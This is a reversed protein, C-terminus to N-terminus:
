CGKRGTVYEFEVRSNESVGLNNHNKLGSYNRELLFHEVAKEHQNLRYYSHGIWNLSRAERYRDVLEKWIVVELLFHEVAKEYQDLYYYSLGINRLCGAKSFHTAEDSRKDLLKQLLSLELQHYELARKYQKLNHYSNGIQSYCKTQLCTDGIEQYITLAQQCYEIAKEYQNLFFHSSGIRLLCIARDAQDDLKQRIPLELLYHEVAKEYQKLYYYQNGINRLCASEKFRNCMKRYITLLQEYTELSSTYNKIGEFSKALQELPKIENILNASRQWLEKAWGIQAQVGAVYAEPLETLTYPYPTLDYNCTSCQEVMTQNETFCVPCETLAESILVQINIVANAGSNTVRINQFDNLWKQHFNIAQEYQRQEFYHDGETITAAFNQCQKWLRVMWAFSQLERHLFDDPLQGKVPIPYTAADWQCVPCYNEQAEPYETQCVPCHLM